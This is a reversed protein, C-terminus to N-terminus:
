NSNATYGGIQAAIVKAHDASNFEGGILGDDKCQLHLKDTQGAPVYGLGMLSITARDNADDGIEASSIDHTTEAGSTAKQLLRCTNVTWVEIYPMEDMYVNVKASLMHMGAPLDVTALTTYATTLDQEANRYHGRAFSIGAPGQAGAAGKAGVPGQPGTAGKPGATNWGQIQETSKCSNGFAQFDILRLAGNSKTMCASYVGTQNNPIAAQASGALGLALLGALALSSRSFRM